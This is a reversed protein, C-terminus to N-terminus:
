LGPNVPAEEGDERKPEEPRKPRHLLVARAVEEPTAGGYDAAYVKGRGDRKDKDAM